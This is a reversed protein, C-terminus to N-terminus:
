WYAGYMGSPISCELKSSHLDSTRGGAAKAAVRLNSPLRTFRTSTRRGIKAHGRCTVTSFHWEVTGGSCYVAISTVTGRLCDCNEVIYGHLKIWGYIKMQFNSRSSSIRAHVYKNFERLYDSFKEVLKMLLLGFNARCVFIGFVNMGLIGRSFIRFVM